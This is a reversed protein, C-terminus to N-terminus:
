GFLDSSEDLRRGLLSEAHRRAPLFFQAHAVACVRDPEGVPFIRALVHVRSASNPRDPDPVAELEYPVGVRVPALNRIGADTTVGLRGAHSMVLWGMLGELVTFVIGCHALGVIGSLDRDFTTRVWVRGADVNPDLQLGRPNDPSALFCRYDPRRRWREREAIVDFVPRDMVVPALFDRLLANVADPVERHPGREGGTVRALRLDRAAARLEVPEPEGEPLVALVPARVRQVPDREAGRYAFARELAGPRSWAQRYADREAPTTERGEFLAATLADVDPRVAALAGPASAQISVLREVLEPHRAALAWGVAAGLDHGVIAIPRGPWLQRVLAAVRDAVLDVRHAEPTGLPESLNCGPLDVAVLDLVDSLATLQRRWAYWFEAFGHLLLVPAGRGGRVLHWRTGDVDVHAARM